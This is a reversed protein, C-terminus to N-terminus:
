NKCLASSILMIEESDWFVSAMIRGASVQNICKQPTSIRQSVMGHQLAKVRSHLLAGMDSWLDINERPINGETYVPTSM